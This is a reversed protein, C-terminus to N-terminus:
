RPLLTPSGQKSVLYSWDFLSEYPDSSNLYCTLTAAMAAVLSLTAEVDTTDAGLMAATLAEAARSRMEEETSSRIASIYGIVLIM